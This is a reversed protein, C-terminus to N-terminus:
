VALRRHRRVYMDDDAQAILAEINLSETGVTALGLSVDLTGLGAGADGARMSNLIRERLRDPEQGRGLGLVVFEDGGWRGVIDASRVSARIADSVIVIVTDGARHGYLDNVRKLGVIDLFVAFIPEGLREAIGALEPVREEVGHRNLAGTLRDRVALGRIQATLGAMEDISRLRLLLLSMGIALAAVSAIVWDTAEAAPWQRSLVVCGILMPVAAVVTPLWSLTLPAYAVVILLVYAFASGDPSRWVEVQGVTVMSLACVMAVWPWAWPKMFPTRALAAGGLLLVCIFGNLGLVLWAISPGFLSNVLTIAAFCGGTVALARPTERQGVSLRFAIREAQAIAV